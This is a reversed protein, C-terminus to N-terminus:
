VRSTTATGFPLYERSQGLMKRSVVVVGEPTRYFRRADEEADKQRMYMRWMRDLLEPDIAKDM